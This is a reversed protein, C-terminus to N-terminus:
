AFPSEVFIQLLFFNLFFNFFLNYFLLLIVIYYDKFSALSLELLFIFLVETVVFHIDYIIFVVMSWSHKETCGFFITSRHAIIGDSLIYLSFIKILGQCHLFEGKHLIYDHWGNVGASVGCNQLTHRISHNLSTM